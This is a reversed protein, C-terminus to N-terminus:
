SNRENLKYMWKNGVLKAETAEKVLKLTENKYLYEMEDKMALFWKVIDKSSMFEKFYKPEENNFKM